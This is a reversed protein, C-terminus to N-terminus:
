LNASFGLLISPIPLFTSSYMLSINLYNIELKCYTYKYGLIYIYIYIYIYLIM